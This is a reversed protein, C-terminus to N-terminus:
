KVGCVLAIALLLLVLALFSYCFLKVASAQRDRSLTAESANM